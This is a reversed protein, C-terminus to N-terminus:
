ELVYLMGSWMVSKYISVDDFMYTLSAYKDNIAYCMDPKEVLESSLSLRSM